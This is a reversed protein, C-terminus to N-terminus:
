NDSRRLIIDDILCDSSWKNQQDFSEKVFDQIRELDFSQNKITDEVEEFTTCVVGPAEDLTRHVGRTLQYYDKDPAYFIIPKRQLSFEYINSSFDTILIETVYFLSNIDGEETLDVIRDRYQSEIETKETIFPHMKYAFVYEDGCLDYVQKQPIWELPYYADAQGKGRYTPAFLILKKGKLQPYKEYFQEKYAARKEPEFYGDLRALGLPLIRSSDIGFVEEYVPILGKGGVVAYDYQRHCSDLPLPSGTKGFRSYGVSKFGVGAHWLQVLTTDKRLHITKFIPVYDDVFIFDQKPIMWLLRSWSLLTKWKSQQLTKSFSYSIKYTQDLGREKLRDDLAKLNGGIPTRTESLLLIHKGDKKRFVALVHYAANIGRKLVIFMAKKVLEKFSGAEVLINRRANKKNKMMYTTHIACVMQGEEVEECPIQPDRNQQKEMSAIIEAPDKVAFTIVYGYIEKGYRFVKDMQELKYGCSPRIKVFRQRGEAEAMIYWKDNDLLKIEPFNVMNMVCTHNKVQLPYQKGKLNSIFLNCSEIGEGEFLVYLYINKWYMDSIYIDKKM